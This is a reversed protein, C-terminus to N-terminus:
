IESDDAAHASSIRGVGHLVALEGLLDAARAPDRLLLRYSLETGEPASGGHQHALHVRLSHRELLRGLEPLEVAPRMWRVNLILDFRRRTGAGTMRLYGFLGAVLLAGIVATSFKRTGCATGIAIAAVVWSTDLTDRLANRFRVVAFVAILGFATVLNDAMIMLVLSVLVPLAVLSVVFSRSYSVGSHTLLYVWAFLQGALFALLLGLALAPLSTPSSALDGQLFANMAPRGM